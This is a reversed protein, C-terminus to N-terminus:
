NKSIFKDVNVFLGISMYSDNMKFDSHSLNKSSGTQIQLKAQELGIRITTSFNSLVNKSRQTLYDFQSEDYNLVEGSINNYNLSSLNYSMGFEFISKRYVVGTQIGYKKLDAKLSQGSRESSINFDGSGITAYTEWVWSPNLNKYYGVGINNLNGRSTFPVYDYTPIGLFGRGTQKPNSFNDSFSNSHFLIGLNELPSYAIETDFGTGANGTENDASDSSHIGLKIDNKKQLGPSAMTGPAYYTPTCSTVLVVLTVYLLFHSQLSTILKM